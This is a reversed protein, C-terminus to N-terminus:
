VQRLWRVLDVVIGSKVIASHSPPPQQVIVLLLSITKEYICVDQGEQKLIDCLSSLSKSILLQLYGSNPATLFLKFFSYLEDLSSLQASKEGKYKKSRTM